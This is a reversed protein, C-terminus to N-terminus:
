KKYVIYCVKVYKIRSELVKWHGGCSRKSKYNFFIFIYPVRLSMQEKTFIHLLFFSNSHKPNIFVVQFIWSSGSCKYIGIQYNTMDIIRIMTIDCHWMIHRYKIYGKCCAFILNSQFMYIALSFQRQLWFCPWLFCSM